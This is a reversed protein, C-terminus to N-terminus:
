GNRERYARQRDANTEYKRPRGRLSRRARRERVAAEGDRCIESCWVGSEGFRTYSVERLPKGCEDCETKSMATSFASQRSV